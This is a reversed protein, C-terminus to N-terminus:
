CIPGNETPFVLKYSRLWDSALAADIKGAKVDGVGVRAFGRPNSPGTFTTKKM